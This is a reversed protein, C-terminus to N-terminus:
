KKVLIFVGTHQTTLAQFFLDSLSETLVQYPESEATSEPAIPTSEAAVSPQTPPEAQAHVIQVDLM